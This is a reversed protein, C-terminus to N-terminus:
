ARRQRLHEWRARTLVLEITQVACGHDRMRVRSGREVMGAVRNIRASQANGPLYWTTIEALEMREFAFDRLALAADVGVGAYGSLEARPLQRLAPLSVALRGLCATRKHPDWDTWGIMGVFLSNEAWRIALLADRPRNMGRLIWARNATPDLLRQDLFCRRVRYSNRLSTIREADEEDPWALLVREGRCLVGEHPFATGMAM